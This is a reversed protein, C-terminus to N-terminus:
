KAAKSQQKNHMEERGVEGGGGGGCREGAQGRKYVQEMDSMTSTGPCSSRLGLDTLQNYRVGIIAAGNIGSHIDVVMGSGGRIETLKRVVHEASTHTCSTDSQTVMRTDARPHKTAQNGAEQNVACCQNGDTVVLLSRRKRWRYM